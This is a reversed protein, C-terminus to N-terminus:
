VLPTIEGPEVRATGLRAFMEERSMKQLEKSM